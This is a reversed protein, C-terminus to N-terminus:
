VLGETLNGFLVSLAVIQDGGSSNDIIAASERVMEQCMKRLTEAESETVNVFNVFPSQMRARFIKILHSLATLVTGPDQSVCLEAGNAMVLHEEKLTLVGKRCLDGATVMGADGLFKRINEPSAKKMMALSLLVFSNFDEWDAKLDTAFTTHVKNIGGDLRQYFKGFVPFHKEMFGAAESPTAIHNLIM